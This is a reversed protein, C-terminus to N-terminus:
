ELYIAALRMEPQEKRPEFVLLFRRVGDDYRRSVRNGAAIRELTDDGMQWASGVKRAIASELEGLRLEAGNSLLMLPVSVAKPPVSAPVEDASPPLETSGALVPAIAPSATRLQEFVLSGLGAMALICVSAIAWELLSSLRARTAEM